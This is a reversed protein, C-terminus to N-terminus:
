PFTGSPRTVEAPAIQLTAFRDRRVFVEAVSDEYVRSWGEQSRIPSTSHRPVLAADTPYETLLRQWGEGGAFFAFNDRVVEPRYLTAFRGDLSVKIRPALHWIVYEGWDLPVALNIRMQTMALARVAGVPYDRPDFAIQFRDGILRGGQLVLQLASLGLLGAALLTRAAPSFAPLSGRWARVAAASQSAVVGAAAIAFVPTHRQHQLAMAATGLALILQWPSERWNCYALTVAFLLLLALFTVQSLDSPAVAQWETIPHEVTLEGAIYVLLRWGYPNIATAATTFLLVTVTRRRQEAAGLLLAGASHLALVLIGLVFAGHLNVWLAFVVPLRWWGRRRGPDRDLWALLWAFLCYSFIQPRIAFGRALVALSLLLLPGWLWPSAARARVLSWLQAFTALGVTLKLAWLGPGGGLAYAGYFIVQSLWEHNMWPEGLATYSYPDRRIVGDAFLIARGFRVHGWLDNDAENSSLFYAASSVVLATWAYALVRDPVSGQTAEGAAAV